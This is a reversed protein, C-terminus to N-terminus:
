WTFEGNRCLKQHTMTVRGTECDHTIYRMDPEHNFQWCSKFGYQSYFRRDAEKSVKFDDSEVLPHCKYGAKEEPIQIQQPMM